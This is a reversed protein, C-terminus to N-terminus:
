TMVSANSTSLPAQSDCCCIHAVFVLVHGFVFYALTQGADLGLKRAERPANKEIFEECQLWGGGVRVMLKDNIISLRIRRTRCAYSSM